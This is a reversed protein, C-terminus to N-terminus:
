GETHFFLCPVPYDNYYIGDNNTINKENRIRRAICNFM